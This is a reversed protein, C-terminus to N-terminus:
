SLSLPLSCLYQFAIKSSRGVCLQDSLICEHVTRKCYIRFCRDLSLFRSLNFFLFFFFSLFCSPMPRKEKQATYTYSYYYYYNIQATRPWSTGRPRRHVRGYITRLVYTEHMVQVQCCRTSTTKLKLHWPGKSPDLNWLYRAVCVCCLTENM